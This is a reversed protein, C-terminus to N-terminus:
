LLKPNFSLVSVSLLYLTRCVIISLNIMLVSHNLMVMYFHNLNSAFIQMCLCEIITISAVMLFINHVTEIIQVNFPYNQEGPNVEYIGVTM